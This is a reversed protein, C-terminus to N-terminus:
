SRGLKQDILTKLGEIQDGNSDVFDAYPRAGLIMEQGVFMTPAGQIAYAAAEAAVAQEIKGSKESNTLCASFKTKDLGIQEIGSYFDAGVLSQGEARKFLLARMELWKGQQGACDVALASRIAEPSNALIYPRVILAIKDGAEVRIQDLTKALAASYQSTYDEYVFIKLPAKASGFIKDGERLTPAKEALYSQALGGQSNAAMYPDAERPASQSATRAIIILIAIVLIIAIIAPILYKQNKKFSSIINGRM